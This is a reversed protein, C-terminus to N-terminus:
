SIIRLIAALKWVFRNMNSRFRIIETRLLKLSTFQGWPQMQIAVFNASLYTGRCVCVRFCIQISKKKEENGMRRCIDYCIKHCCLFLLKIFTAVHGLCSWMRCAVFCWWMHLSTLPMILHLINILFSIVHTCSYIHTHTHAVEYKTRAHLCRCCCYCCCYSKLQLSTNANHKAKWENSNRSNRRQNKRKWKGTGTEEECQLLVVRKLLTKNSCNRNHFANFTNVHPTAFTFTAAM